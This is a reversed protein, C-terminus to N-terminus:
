SSSRAKATRKERYMAGIAKSPNTSAMIFADRISYWLRIINKFAKDLTLTSGALGGTEILRSIGKEIKIKLGGLEYVGDPLGTASIVDTILVMGQIGAFDITFKIMGPMVYIFDTILELYANPSTLLAIVVGPERHHIERMGNYLHTAKSVGAVMGLM